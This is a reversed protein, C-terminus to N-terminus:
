KAENVQRILDDRQQKVLDRIALTVALKKAIPQKNFHDPGSGVIGCITLAELHNIKGAAQAESKTNQFVEYEKFTVDLAASAAKLKEPAQKEEKLTKELKDILQVIRNM